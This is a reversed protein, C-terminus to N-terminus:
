RTLGRLFRSEGAPTELRLEHFQNTMELTQLTGWPLNLNANTQIELTLGREAYCALDMGGADAALIELRPPSLQVSALRFFSPEPITASLPMQLERGDFRMRAMREWPGAVDGASELDHAEGPRAFLRLSLGGHSRALELLPRDSVLVVRGDRVFTTGVVSGDPLRATINSLPLPLFASPQPTTSTFQLQALVNSGRISQGPQSQLSIRYRGDGLEQLSGTSVLDSWAGLQPTTLRQTPMSVEAVLNTLGATSILMVNVAGPEGALVVTEGLATETYDEVGVRFTRSASAPPVGDDTVLITIAYTGPAQSRTPAWAFVGSETGLRANAPAELNM